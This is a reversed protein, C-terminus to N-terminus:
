RTASTTLIVVDGAAQETLLRVADTAPTGAPIQAPQTLALLSFSLELNDGPPPCPATWGPDGLSNALQTGGTPVAGEAVEGDAAPIGVVIWHVDGGDGGEAAVLALETTGEPITSWRLAPSPGGCLFREPLPGGRAFGSSALDFANPRPPPFTTQPVLGTGTPDFTGLDLPPLSSVVSATTPVSRTPSTVDRDPERLERGSSGCATVATVALAVLAVLAVLHSRRARPTRHM